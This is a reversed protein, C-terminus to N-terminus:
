TNIKRCILVITETSFSNIIQNEFEINSFGQMEKSTLLIYDTLMLRVKKPIKLMNCWANFDNKREYTLCSQIRLRNRELLSIWNNKKLIYHQSSDRKKEFYNYFKDHHKNEPSVSDILIFLGQDELVRQIEWLFHSPNKFYYAAYRCIVTDFSCKKFPLNETNGVIYSINKYKSSSNSNRIKELTIQEFGMTIVEEFIPSLTDSITGQETAIDLLRKNKQNTFYNMWYQLELDTECIQNAEFYIKNESNEKNLNNYNM